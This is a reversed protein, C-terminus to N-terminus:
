WVSGFWSGQLVSLTNTSLVSTHSGGHGGKTNRPDEGGPLDALSCTQSRDHKCLALLFFVSACASIFASPQFSSCIYLLFLQVNLPSLLSHALFSPFFLCVPLLSALLFLLFLVLFYCFTDYPLFIFLISSFLLRFLVTSLPLSLFPFFSSFWSLCCPFYLKLLKISLTQNFFHVLDPSKLHANLWVRPNPM